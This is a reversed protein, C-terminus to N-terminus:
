KSEGLEIAAQKAAARISIAEDVKVTIESHTTTGQNEIIADKFIIAIAVKIAEAEEGYDEVYKKVHGANKFNVSIYGDPDIRGFEIEGAKGPVTLAM